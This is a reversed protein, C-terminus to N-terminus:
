EPQTAMKRRLTELVTIKLAVPTAKGKVEYTVEAKCPLHVYDLHTANGHEDLTETQPNIVFTGSDTTFDDETTGQIVLTATQTVGDSAGAALPSGIFVTVLLGLVIMLQTRSNNHYKM